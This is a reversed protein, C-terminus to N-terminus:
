GVDEEGSDFFHYFLQYEDACVQSIFSCGTRTFGILEPTTSALQSIFETILPQLLQSRMQFYIGYCDQLLTTYRFVHTEGTGFSKVFESHNECRVEIETTLPKLETAIARFRIYLLSTKNNNNNSSNSAKGESDSTVHGTRLGPTVEDTLGRVMTGFHHQILSLGRTMCQRFRM